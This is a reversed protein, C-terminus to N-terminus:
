RKNKLIVNIITKTGFPKVPKGIVILNKKSTFYHRNM